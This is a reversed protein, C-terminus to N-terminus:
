IWAQSESQWHELTFTHVFEASKAMFTGRPNSKIDLACREATLGCGQMGHM